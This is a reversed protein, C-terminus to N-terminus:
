AAHSLDHCGYTGKKMSTTSIACAKPIWNQSILELPTAQEKIPRFHVELKQGFALGIQVMTDLTFNNAGSLIKTVFAPSKSLKGALAKKSIGQAEMLGIMEEAVHLKILEVRFVADYQLSAAADVEPYTNTVYNM